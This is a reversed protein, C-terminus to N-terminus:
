VYSITYTTRMMTKRRQVLIKVLPTQIMRHRFAIQIRQELEYVPHSFLFWTIELIVMSIKFVIQFESTNIM